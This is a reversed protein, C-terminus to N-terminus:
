ILRNGSASAIQTGSPLFAVSWVNNNYTQWKQILQGTKINWMQVTSNDSGMTLLESRPAWSVSTISSG